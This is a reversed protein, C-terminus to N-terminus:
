LDINVWKKRTKGKLRRTGVLVDYMNLCVQQKVSFTEPNYIRLQM